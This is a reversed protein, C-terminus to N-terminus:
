LTVGRETLYSTVDGMFATVHELAEDPQLLLDDSTACHDYDALNRDDRLNKLVTKYTACKNLREPLESLSQHDSSDTSFRGSDVLNIARRANYAAYYLRSIRQRWFRAEVSLAFDFHEKALSFLQKANRNIAENIKALEADDLIGRLNRMMRAANGSALLIHPETLGGNRQTAMFLKDILPRNVFNDNGSM